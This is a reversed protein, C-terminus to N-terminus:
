RGFAAVGRVAKELLEEAYYAATFGLFSVAAAGLIDVPWHEGVFVRAFGTVVAATLMIYGFSKRRRWLLGWAAAFVVTTHQSPFANEAAGSAITEYLQFPSPHQYVLGSLYSVALALVTAVFVYLGDVKGEEGTFWLFILSLPVLFVLYEAFMHMATDVIPTGTLQQVALFLETNLAM